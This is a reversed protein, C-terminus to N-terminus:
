SGRLQSWLSRAIANLSYWVSSEVPTWFRLIIRSIVDWSVASDAARCTEAYGAVKIDSTTLRILACKLAYVRDENVVM